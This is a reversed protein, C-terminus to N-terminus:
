RKFKYIKGYISNEVLEFINKDYIGLLFMKVYNSNLTQNDLAVGMGLSKLYIFNINGNSDYQNSTLATTGDKKYEAIILKNLKGRLNTSGDNSNIKVGNSLSIVGKTISRIYGSYFMIDRIKKGTTLDLNAFQTIVPFIRISKSPMYLYIDRSKKPLKFNITDLKALFETPDKQDKQGNKLLTSIIPNYAYGIHYPKNDKTLFKYENPIKEVNSGNKVWEKYSKAAKAYNEVSLRALNAAFTSSNSLLISAIVYNDNRHKGGDILTNTNSYYWIPYGYDWWSLTYDKPTSRKKLNVLQEIESKKFVPTIIKNYEWAHSINSYLVALSIVSFTALQAKKESIFIKSLQYILFTFSLILVFSGYITFRLGGWHSFIGIGILPLLIVFEKRKYVLYLYGAVAFIFAISSGITRNAVSNLHSNAFFPIGNAEAITQFVGFFKLGSSGQTGTEIYENVKSLITGFIDGQFFLILFAAAALYILISKKFEKYKLILYIVSLIAISVVFKWPTAIYIVPTASLMVLTISKLSAENLKNEWLIYLSYFLIVAYTVMRGSDYFFPYIAITISAIFAVNLSTTKISKLLFYSIWVLIMVSFMDTDYYGVMTRNYYSWAISAILASLLGWLPEKYLNAILIIPAVILSAVFAPMYFIITDLSIPLVKALLTTIFTLGRSFLEPTLPNYQHLGDITKQVGSAFYYGDNTNVIYSGNYLFEPNAGQQYIYLYRILISFIYAFLIMLYLQKNSTSKM